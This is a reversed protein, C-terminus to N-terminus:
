MLVRAPDSAAVLRLVEMAPIGVRVRQLYRQDSVCYSPLYVRVPRLPSGTLYVRILHLSHVSNCAVALHRPGEMILIRLYDRRDFTSRFM